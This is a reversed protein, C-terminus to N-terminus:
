QVNEWTNETPPTANRDKKVVCAIVIGVSMLILLILLLILFVINKEALKALERDLTIVDLFRLMM